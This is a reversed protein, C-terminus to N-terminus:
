ATPLAQRVRYPVALELAREPDSQILEALADRRAQALAVGEPELATKADATKADHFRNAWEAFLAFEPLDDSKQWTLGVPPLLWSQNTRATEPDSAATAPGLPSATAAPASSPKETSSQEGRQTLGSHSSLYLFLVAAFAAAVALVIKLRM